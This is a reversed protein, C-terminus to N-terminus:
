RGIRPRVSELKSKMGGALDRPTPVGLERALDSPTPLIEDPMPIGFADLVANVPFMKKREEATTM